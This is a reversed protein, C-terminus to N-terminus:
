GDEGVKEGVVRMGGPPGMREMLAPFLPETVSM